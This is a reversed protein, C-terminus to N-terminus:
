PGAPTPPDTAPPPAPEVSTPRPLAATITAQVTERDVVPAELTGTIVASITGGPQGSQEIGAAPFSPLQLQYALAGNKGVSGGLSLEVEGALLHLPPCSVRGEGAVCRLEQERVQLTEAEISSMKLLDRLVGTPKFEVRAL